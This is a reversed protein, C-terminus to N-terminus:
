DTIKFYTFNSKAIEGCLVFSYKVNISKIDENDSYEYNCLSEEDIILDMKM